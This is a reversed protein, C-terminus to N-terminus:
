GVLTGLKTGKLRDPTDQASLERTGGQECDGSTLSLPCATVRSVGGRSTAGVKYVKYNLHLLDQQERFMLGQGKRETHNEARVDNRRGAAAVNRRIWTGALPFACKRTAGWTVPCKRGERPSHSAVQGGSCSAGSPLPQMQNLQRGLVPSLM